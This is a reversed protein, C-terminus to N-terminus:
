LRTFRDAPMLKTSCWRPHIRVNMIIETLLIHLCLENLLFVNSRGKRTSYYVNTNDTYIVLDHGPFKKAAVSVAQRFATVEGALILELRKRFQRVRVPYWRKDVLMIEEFPTQANVGADSVFGNGCPLECIAWGSLSADCAFISEAPKVRMVTKLWESLRALNRFEQRVRSPLNINQYSATGKRRHYALLVYSHHLLSFFRRSLPFLWANKGMAKEFIWYRIRSTTAVYM